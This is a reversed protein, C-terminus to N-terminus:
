HGSVASGTTMFVGSVGSSAPRGMIQAQLAADALWFQQDAAIAAIVASVQDRADALLEFVGILMANYRLVSEEAIQKRLPLVQDKYQRSVDYATRYAGYSERLNSSAVRLTNELGQAAALTQATMADRRMGGGDFIPLRVSVDYGSRGTSLGTATDTTKGKQATLEIDTYSTASVWGQAAAAARWSAQAWQVDLRERGAQQGVEQAPRPTAPLDPLRDPLKLAHAQHETLGLLRVLEERRSASSQRASALQTVADAHFAQHRARTIRNFNGVAEMRRALEAGVEASEVVQEAYKLMQDAAVANVRAQRVQTVRDVVDSALKFQLQEIRRDAAKVRLPLTLLDLLGVGLYHNLERDTGAQVRELSWVPNAIRGSQAAWASDSWHQALLEQFAPSNVLMLQVAADAQLPSDLLQQALEVRKKQQDPTLALEIDAAVFRRTVGNVQRTGDQVDYHACGSLAALLILASSFSLRISIKM